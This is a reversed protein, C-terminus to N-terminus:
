NKAGANQLLTIIKSNGYRKAMGLLTESHPPSLNPNAGHTLLLQVMEANQGEIAYYLVTSGDKSQANADAGKDLLLRVAEASGVVACEMLPTM